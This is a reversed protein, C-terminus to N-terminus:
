INSYAHKRLPSNLFISFIKNKELEGCVRYPVELLYGSCSIKRLVGM